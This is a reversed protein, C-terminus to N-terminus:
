IIWFLSTMYRADQPSHPTRKRKYLRQELSISPAHKQSSESDGTIPIDSLNSADVIEPEHESVLDFMHELTMTLSVFDSHKIFQFPFPCRDVARIKWRFLANGIYRSSFETDRLM